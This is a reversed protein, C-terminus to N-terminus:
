NNFIINMIDHETINEKLEGKIKGEHFVIVRDCLGVVEMLDSSIVIVGGNSKSFDRLLKHIEVKSGIDIGRTPEDVIFVKPNTALYKALLVKQQNGGSLSGVADKINKTKISLKDVYENSLKEEQNRQMLYNSSCNKLNAAAINLEISHNLFLGQEKRDEPSYAIGKRLADKPNQIETKQGDIYVEGSDKPEYGFLSHMVETRGAGSLGALGLIEGSRVFLNINEFKGKYSFNSIRLLEKDQTRSKEPYLQNISRGVMLKVVEAQNTESTKLTSVLCGDRLITIKDSIDFIEDLKHSIFIIGTNQNKLKKVLEFLKKVETIELASTPEDLILIKAKISVAKIIEVMQKQALSLNRVLTNPKVEIDLEKLFVATNEFLENRNIIGFKCPERNVFINEAITLNHCLSLEQYVTSIGNAIAEKPNSIDIHNGEIFIDGTDGKVVGSLIKMLTSKGAGNEGVIALIEGANLLLSVDTLAKTAGFSKSINKIELLQEM